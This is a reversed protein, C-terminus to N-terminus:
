PFQQDMHNSGTDGFLRSMLLGMGSFTTQGSAAPTKNSRQVPQPVTAKSIDESSSQTQTYKVTSTTIIM